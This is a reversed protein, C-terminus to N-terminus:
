PSPAPAEGCRIAPGTPAGPIPEAQQGIRVDAANAGPRKTTAARAKRPPTLARLDRALAREILRDVEQRDIRLRRDFRVVRLLKRAIFYRVQRKSTGLYDAASAIDFL